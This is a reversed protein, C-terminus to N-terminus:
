LSYQESVICSRIKEILEEDNFPKIIYGSVGIKECRKIVSEQGVASVVIVESQIGAKRIRRLVTEGDIDPLVMDLLILDPNQKRATEIAQKGNSAEFIEIKRFNYLKQKLLIRMFNSDDVILVKKM